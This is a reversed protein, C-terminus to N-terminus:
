TDRTDVVVCVEIKRAITVNSKRRDKFAVKAAFERDSLKRFKKDGPLLHFSVLYRQWLMGYFSIHLPSFLPIQLWHQSSETSGKTPDKDMSM